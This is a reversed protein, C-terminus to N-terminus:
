HAIQYVSFYISLPLRTLWNLVFLRGVSIIKLGERLPHVPRPYKYSEGGMGLFNSIEM